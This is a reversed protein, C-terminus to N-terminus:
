PGREGRDRRSEAGSSGDLSDLVAKSRKLAERLAMRMWKNRHGDSISLVELHAYAGQSPVRGLALISYEVMGDARDSAVPAASGSLSLWYEPETWAILWALVRERDGAPLRDFFLALVGPSSVMAQYRGRAVSTWQRVHGEVLEKVFTADVLRGHFALVYMARIWCADIVEPETHQRVLRKLADLDDVPFHRLAIDDRLKEAFSCLFTVQPMSLGTSEALAEARRVEFDLSAPLTPPSAARSAGCAVGILTAVLVAVRAMLGGEARVPDTVCRAVPGPLNMM